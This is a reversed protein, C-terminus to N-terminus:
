KTKPIGEVTMFDLQNFRPVKEFGYQFRMLLMKKDSVEETVGTLEMRLRVPFGERVEEEFEGVKAEM